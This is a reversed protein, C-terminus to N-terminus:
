RSNPMMRRGIESLQDAFSSVPQGAAIGASIQQLRRVADADATVTVTAQPGVQQKIREQVQRKVQNTQAGTVNANLDLGVYVANNNVVVTAKRVGAVNAAVKSLRDAQRAAAQSNNPAMPAAPAPATQVQPVTQNAPPPTQPLPAPAPPAAQQPAPAPRAAPGCATTAAGLGFLLPVVLVRLWHKAYM